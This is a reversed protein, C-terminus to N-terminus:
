SPSGGSPSGSTRSCRYLAGIDREALIRCVDDRQYLTPDIAPASKEAGPTPTAALSALKDAHGYSM